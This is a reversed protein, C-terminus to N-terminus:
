GKNGSLRCTYMGAHSLLLPSFQLTSTYTNGSSTMVPEMVGAPLSDNNPGFFWEFAFPSVSDPLAIDIYCQLNTNMGVIGEISPSITVGSQIDVLPSLCTITQLM